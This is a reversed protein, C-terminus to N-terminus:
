VDFPMKFAYNTFNTKLQLCNEDTYAKRKTTLLFRIHAKCTVTMAYWLYWLDICFCGPVSHSISEEKGYDLVLLKHNVRKTAEEKLLLHGQFHQM